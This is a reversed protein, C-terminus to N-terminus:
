WGEHVYNKSYFHGTSRNATLVSKVRINRFDIFNAKTILAYSIKSWFNPIRERRVYLGRFNPFM